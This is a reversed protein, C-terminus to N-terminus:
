PSCLDNPILSFANSHRLPKCRCATASKSNHHANHYAEPNAPRFRSFTPFVDDGDHLLWVGEVVIRFSRGTQFIRILRSM